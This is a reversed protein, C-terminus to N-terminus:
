PSPEAGGSRSGSPGRAVQDPVEHFFDEKSVVADGNLLNNLQGKGLAIVLDEGHAISCQGQPFNLFHSRVDSKQIDDHGFGAAIFNALFHLAVRHGGANRDEQQGAGELRKIALAGVGDAGITM